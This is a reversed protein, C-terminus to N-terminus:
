RTDDVLRQALEEEAHIAALRQRTEIIVAEMAEVKKPRIGLRAYFEKLFAAVAEAAWLSAGVGCARYPLFAADAPALRNLAFKSKMRQELRQSHKLDDYWEPKYHVLADRLEFLDATSQLPEAGKPMPNAQALSLVWDFKRLLPLRDVTDWLDVIQRKVHSASGLDDDFGDIVDQRFENVAAELACAAGIVAGSACGFHRDLIVQTAPWVHHRELGDCEIALALAGRLHAVALNVRVRLTVQSGIIIQAAM